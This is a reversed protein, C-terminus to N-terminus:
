STAFPVNGGKYAFCLCTPDWALVRGANTPAYQGPLLNSGVTMASQYTTGIQDAGQKFEAASIDGQPAKDFAAKMFMTADCYQMANRYNQREGEEVPPIGAADLISKCLGESPRTPDPFPEVKAANVVDYAPIYGFGSGGVVRETFVSDPNEEIFGPSDFSSISWISNYSGAGVDSLAVPMIRAGGVAIVRDFGAAKGAAVAASSTNNLTGTNTSDVYNISTKTIGNQALFPQIIETAVRRTVENDVPLIQVGQTGAFYGEALLANLQTRMFAGYEPHTPSWLYPSYEEFQKQDHAILTEDIILTNAAKYCPLVNNEYQGDLVAAAVQSDQTFANCLAQSQEASASISPYPKIDAVVQRGGMGGNANVYGVFANIINTLTPFDGQFSSNFGLTKALPGTDVVAYGIKITSDTIGPLPTEGAGGSNSDATTSCAALVGAAAVLAIATVARSRRRSTM